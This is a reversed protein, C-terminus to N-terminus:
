SIGEHNQRWSLIRQWLVQMWPEDSHQLRAEFAQGIATTAPDGPWNPATEVFQVITWALGFCSDDETPNFCGLLALAEDDAAPPRLASLPEEFEKLLAIMEDDPRVDSELPLPELTVLRQVEPRM